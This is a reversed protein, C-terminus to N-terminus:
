QRFRAVWLSRREVMARRPLLAEMALGRAGAAHASPLTHRGIEGTRVCRTLGHRAEMTMVVRSRECGITVLAEPTRWVGRWSRM